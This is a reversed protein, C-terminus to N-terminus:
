SVLSLLASLARLLNITLCHNTTTATFIKYKRKATNCM